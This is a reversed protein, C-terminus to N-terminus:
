GAPYHRLLDSLNQARAPRIEALKIETLSGAQGANFVELMGALLTLFAAGEDIGVGVGHITFGVSSANPFEAVAARIGTSGFFAIDGLNFRGLREVGLFLVHPARIKGDTPFSKYECPARALDAPLRRLKAAVYADAGYFWQAHKLVLVDVCLDAVDVCEVLIRPISM